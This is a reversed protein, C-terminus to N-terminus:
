MCNSLANFEPDQWEPAQAHYLLLNKGNEAVRSWWKKKKALDDM